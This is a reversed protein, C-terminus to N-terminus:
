NIKRKLQNKFSIVEEVFNNTLREMEEEQLLAYEKKSPNKFNLVSLINEKWVPYGGESYFEYNLQRLISEIKSKGKEIVDNDNEDYLTIYSGISDIITFCLYIQMDEIDTLYVEVGYDRNNRSQYHWKKVSTLVDDDAMGYKYISFDHDEFANILTEWFKVQLEIKLELISTEIDGIFQYNDDQKLAEKIENIYDMNTPKNTLHDILQSYQSLSERLSPILAVEKICNNIWNKIDSEYSCLKYDALQASKESSEYGTLTLYFLHLKDKDNTFKLGFEYYRDLQRHQDEAWIKNEIIIMRPSNGKEKVIIDIYGKEGNEHFFYNETIVIADSSNFDQIELEKLFLRLFTDNQLHEAHPNLLFSLFRSHLTTERHGIQLAQFINFDLADRELLKDYKFKITSVRDLLNQINM